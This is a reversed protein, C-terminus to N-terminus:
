GAIHLQPLLLRAFEAQMTAADPYPGSFRPWSGGAREQITVTASDMRLLRYGARELKDADQSRSVVTDGLVAGDEALLARITDLHDLVTQRDVDQYNNAQSEEIQALFHRYARDFAEGAVPKATAQGKAQRVKTAAQEGLYDRVVKNIHGASLKAGPPLSALVEPWVQRLQEPRLRTLARIQRENAPLTAGVLAVDFSGGTPSTELQGPQAMTKLTDYVEAALMLRSAHSHAIGLQEKCYREYKGKHTVRYLNREKIERLASATLYFAQHEVEKIQNELESLRQAEWQSMPKDDDVVM